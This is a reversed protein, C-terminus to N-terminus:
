IAVEGKYRDMRDLSPYHHSAWRMNVINLEDVIDIRDVIDIMDTM